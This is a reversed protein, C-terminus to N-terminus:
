EWRIGRGEGASGCLGLFWEVRLFSPLCSISPLAFTDLAPASRVGACGFVATMGVRVRQFSSGFVMRNQARTAAAMREGRGAVAAAGWGGSGGAGVM